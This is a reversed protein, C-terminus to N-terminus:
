KLIHSKMETIYGGLKGETIALSTTFEALHGGLEPLDSVVKQIEMICSMCFEAKDSGKKLDPLEKKKM